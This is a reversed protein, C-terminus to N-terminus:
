KVDMKIARSGLISFIKSMMGIELHRGIGTASWFFFSGILKMSGLYKEGQEKM